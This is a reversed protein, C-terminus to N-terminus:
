RKGTLTTPKILLNMPARLRTIKQRISTPDPHLKGDEDGNIVLHIRQFLGDTPHPIDLERFLDDNHVITGAVAAPLKEITERHLRLRSVVREIFELHVELRRILTFPSGDPRGQGM